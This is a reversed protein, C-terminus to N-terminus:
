RRRQGVVTLSVVLVSIAGFALLGEALPGFHWLPQGGRDDPDQLYMVYAAVDRVDDDDLAEPGFVPMTGPGTRVAEAVQEPTSLQLAPAEGYRLAGGQGAAQHCAACELRFSEGGRAVDAGAIDVEPVPPGGPGLRTVYEVLAAITEPDYTPARRVVEADPEPLPMRGTTLEYDVLAAGVGLLSPGDETGEARPGHCSACDRLFIEAADGIGDPVPAPSSSLFLAFGAVSVAVPGITCVQRFGIV